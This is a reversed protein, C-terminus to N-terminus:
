GGSTVQTLARLVQQVDEQCGETAAIVKSTVETLKDIARFIDEYAKYVEDWVRPFGFVALKDKDM